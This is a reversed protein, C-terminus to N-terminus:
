SLLCSDRYTDLYHTHKTTTCIILNQTHNTKHHTIHNTIHNNNHTHNTREHIMCVIIINVYQTHDNNHTHNTREHEKM